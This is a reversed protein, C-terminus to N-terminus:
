TLCLIYGKKHWILYVKKLAVNLRNQTLIGHFGAFWVEILQGIM